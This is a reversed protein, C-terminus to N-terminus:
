ASSARAIHRELGPLVQRRWGAGHFLGFHGLGECTMHSKLAPDLGSCLRHAVRTQGPAAIDDLAGEVTLLATRSLAQPRVAVGRWRLAGRALATDHFVRAVTDLYFEGPVDQVAMLLKAFAHWVPDIGDDRWIKRWVEDDPELPRALHRTLYATLLGWQVRAPYVLRGRGPRHAAVPAVITRAFWDLPHARVLADLATPNTHPDLKGGLLALSAPTAAAGDQALLATAALAPLASQCLGVLHTGPGLRMLAAMVTAITDDMDFPGDALPVLAADSWTLLHVDHGPLLGLAMDCMLRPTMGSLPTLLLVRPPPATPLPDAPPTSSAQVRILRHFPSEDLVREHTPPLAGALLTSRADCPADPARPAVRRPPVHHDQDRQHGLAGDM